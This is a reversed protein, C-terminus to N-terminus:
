KFIITVIFFFPKRCVSLIPTHWRFLLFLYRIPSSLINHRITHFFTSSHSPSFNWATWITSLHGLMINRYLKEFANLLILSFRFTDNQVCMESVWESMMGSCLAFGRLVLKVYPDISPLPFIKDFLVMVSYLGLMM